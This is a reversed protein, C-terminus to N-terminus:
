PGDHEVAGDIVDVGCTTVDSTPHVISDVPIEGGVTITGTVRGPAAIEIVSYSGAAVNRFTSGAATAGATDSAAGGGRGCAAAAVVAM